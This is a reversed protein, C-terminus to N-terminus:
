FSGEILRIRDDAILSPTQESAFALGGLEFLKDAEQIGALSPCSSAGSTDEGLNLRGLGSLDEDLGQSILLPAGSQPGADGTDQTDKKRATFRDQSLAKLIWLRL